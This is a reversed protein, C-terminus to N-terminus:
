YDTKSLNAAPPYVFFPFDIHQPVVDKDIQREPIFVMRFRLPDSLESVRAIPGIYSIPGTNFSGRGFNGGISQDAQNM